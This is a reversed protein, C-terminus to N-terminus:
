VSEPTPVVTVRCVVVLGAFGHAGEFMRRDEERLKLRAREADKRWNYIGHLAGCYFVAWRAGSRPKGVFQVFEKIKGPKWKKKRENVKKPTTM